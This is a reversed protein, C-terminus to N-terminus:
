KLYKELYNAVRRHGAKNWHNDNQIYFREIVMVPNQKEIFLPYLNVFNINNKKCFKRWSEVYYDTTDGIKIQKHWPHVSLQMKMNKAKCLDVLKQINNQGLKLGKNALDITLSDYFWSGVGHFQPSRLLDDNDFDRFFDEYLEATNKERSTLNDPDFRNMKKLFTDIRKADNRSKLFHYTFSYKDLFKALNTKLYFFAGTKQPTFAQYAIENQLDSIDIFIWVEDVDLGVENILYETKLYYIKPSYSVASANLIDIGRKEAKKQLIGAFTNKYWVGVGESHSDGIILIRKDDTQLPVEYKASDILGISNTHVNYLIEGWCTTQATNAKLGHHYYPHKIRFHNLNYPNKFYGLVFDTIIFLAIFVFINILILKKTKKKM